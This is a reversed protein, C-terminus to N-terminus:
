RCGDPRGLVGPSHFVLGGVVPSGSSQSLTRRKVCARPEQRFSRRSIRGCSAVRRTTRSPTRTVAARACRECPHDVFKATERLAFRERASGLHEDRRPTHVELRNGPPNRFKESSRPRPHNPTRTRCRGGDDSPLSLVRPRSAVSAGRPPSRSRGSWPPLTGRSRWSFSWSRAGALSLGPPSPRGPLPRVSSCV